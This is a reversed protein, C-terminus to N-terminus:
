EDEIVEAPSYIGVKKYGARYNILETAEITKRKVIHKFNLSVIFDISKVAAIAIHIADTAYKRPIVGEAIYIEALQEAESDADFTKINHERILGLMLARKQKSARELEEVVYQSTYPEYKGAKIEEFLKITNQRKEPADDAFVFNFVSTELYVKPIRM